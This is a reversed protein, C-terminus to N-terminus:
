MAWGVARGAEVLTEGSWTGTLGRSYLHVFLCTDAGRPAQPAVGTRLGPLLRGSM